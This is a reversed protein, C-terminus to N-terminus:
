ICVIQHLNLIGILRKILSTIHLAVYSLCFKCLFNRAICIHKVDKLIPCLIKCIQMKQEAHGNLKQVMERSRALEERPLM